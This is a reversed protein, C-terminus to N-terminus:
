SVPVHDHRRLVTRATLTVTREPATAGVPTITFIFGGQGLRVMRVLVAGPRGPFTVVDGTVVDGPLVADDVVAVNGAASVSTM